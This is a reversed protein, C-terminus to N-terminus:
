NIVRIYMNYIYVRACAHTCTHLSNRANHSTLYKLYTRTRVYLTKTMAFSFIIFARTQTVLFKYSSMSGSEKAVYFNTCNAHADGGEAYRFVYLIPGGEYKNYILQTRLFLKHLM